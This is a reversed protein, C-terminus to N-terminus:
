RKHRLALVRSDFKLKGFKEVIKQRKIKEILEKLAEELLKTKQSFGTIKLAEKVLKEDLDVTTRM